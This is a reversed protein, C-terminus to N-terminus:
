TQVAQERPRRLPRPVTFFPLPSSSNSAEALGPCPALSLTPITPSSVACPSVCSEPLPLFLGPAEPLLPFCFPDGSSLLPKESNPIRKPGQETGPM